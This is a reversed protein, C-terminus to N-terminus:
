ALWETYMLSLCIQFLFTKMFISFYLELLGKFRSYICWYIKMLMIETSVTTLAFAPIMMM